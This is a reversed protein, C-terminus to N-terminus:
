DSNLNLVPDIQVCNAFWISIHKPRMISHCRLTCRDRVPSRPRAFQVLHRDVRIARLLAGLNCPITVESLKYNPRGRSLFKISSGGRAPFALTVRDTDRKIINSATLLHDSAQDKICSGSVSALTVRSRFVIQRNFGHHSFREDNVYFLSCNKSYVRCRPSMKIVRQSSKYRKKRM